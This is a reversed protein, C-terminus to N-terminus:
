LPDWPPETVYGEEELQRKLDFRWELGIRVVHAGDPLYDAEVVRDYAVGVLWSRRPALHLWLGFAHELRVPDAYAFVFGYTALLRREGGVPIPIQAGTEVVFMRDVRQTAGVGFSGNLRLGDFAGLWVELAGWGTLGRAVREEAAVSWGSWVAGNARAGVGGRPGEYGVAATMRSFTQRMGDDSLMYVGPDMGVDAYLPIEAHYVARLTASLVPSREQTIWLERPLVGTAGAGVTARVDLMGRRPEPLVVDRPSVQASVGRAGMASWLLVVVVFRLARWPPGPSVPHHADKM